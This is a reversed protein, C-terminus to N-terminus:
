SKAEWIARILGLRREVTRLGCDLQQAAEKNDYGEMKLRALSRMAEDPLLELLRESEEAVQAAFEATPERGIVDIIGSSNPEGQSSPRLFATEGIM